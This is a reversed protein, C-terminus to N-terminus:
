STCKLDDYPDTDTMYYIVQRTFARDETMGDNLMQVAANFARFMDYM